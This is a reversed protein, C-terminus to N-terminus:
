HMPDLHGTVKVTMTDPDPDGSQRPDPFSRHYDFAVGRSYLSTGTYSGSAGPAGDAWLFEYTNFYHVLTLHAGMCLDPPLGPPPMFCISPFEYRSTWSGAAVDLYPTGASAAPNYNGLVVSADAEGPGSGSTPDGATTLFGGSDSDIAWAGNGDDRWEGPVDTPALHLDMVMTLNQSLQGRSNVRSYELTLEGGLHAPADDDQITVAVPRAPAKARKATVKITFQETPEPTQDALLPVRITATRKGKAIKATGATQQYDSGARATKDATRWRVTVAKPAKRSLRMTVVAIGDEAVASSALSLRPPKAAGAPSTIMLIAGAVVMALVIASTIYPRRSM